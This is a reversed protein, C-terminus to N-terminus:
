QGGRRAPMTQTVQNFYIDDYRVRAGDADLFSLSQTFLGPEPGKVPVTGDLIYLRDQHLYLAAFTRTGDANLLNVQQGAVRDIHHWADYTVKAGPRYRYLKTAAYQMSGVVDIRWYTGGFSPAHSMSLYQKEAGSYDIVTLTYKEPGRFATYVRGPHTMRYESAWAITEVTPQGPFNVSFRDDRSVFTDWEQAFAPTSAAIIVAGLVFRAFSM